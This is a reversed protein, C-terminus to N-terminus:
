LSRYRRVTAMSFTYIYQIMELPYQYQVGVPCAMRAVCRDLCPSHDRLRFNFCASIDFANDVSVAAAPCHSICPKDVCVDCPSLPPTNESVPLAVHTLFASRYAFWLGYEGSIGVGLPSVQGWGLLAGIRQLPISLDSPFLLQYAPDQIFETCFRHTLKKSLSDIPDAVSM